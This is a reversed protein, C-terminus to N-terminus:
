TKRRARGMGGRQMKPRHKSELMTAAVSYTQAMAQLIQAELWLWILYTAFGENL